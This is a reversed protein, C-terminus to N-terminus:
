TNLRKQGYVMNVDVLSLRQFSIPIRGLKRDDLILKDDLVGIIKGHYVFDHSNVRKTLTVERGLFENWLNQENMNM